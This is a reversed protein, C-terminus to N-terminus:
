NQEALFRFVNTADSYGFHSSCNSDPEIPHLFERVRRFVLWGTKSPQPDIKCAVNKLPQFIHFGVDIGAYVSLIESLVSASIDISATLPCSANFEAKFAMAWNAHLRNGGGSFTEIVTM